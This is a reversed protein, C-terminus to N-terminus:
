SKYGALPCDLSELQKETMINMLEASNKASKLNPNKKEETKKKGYDKEYVTM